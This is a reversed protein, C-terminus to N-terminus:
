LISRCDFQKQSLKAAVAASRRHQSLNFQPLLQELFLQKGQRISQGKNIRELTTAIKVFERAGTSRPSPRPSPSFRRVDDRPLNWIARHRSSPGLSTHFAGNTSLVEGLWNVRPVPGEGWGEGRLVPALSHILRCRGVREEWLVGRWVQSVVLFSCFYARHRDELKM